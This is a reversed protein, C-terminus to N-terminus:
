TQTVFTYPITDDAINCIDIDNLAFFMDNIYSNSLMPGPVSGRSVEQLLQTWSSFTTNIKVRQWRKQLYSLPM